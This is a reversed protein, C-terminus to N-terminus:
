GRMRQYFLLYPQEGLVARLPVVDVTREGFRLWQGSPQLADTTYRGKTPARGPADSVLGSGSGHGHHHHSVAAVLGLTVCGGRVDPSCDDDLLPSTLTLAPEFSMVTRLTPLVRAEAPLHSPPPAAAAAATATAAAAATAAPAAAPHRPSAMGSAADSGSDHSRLTPHVLHIVLVEPLVFLAASKRAGAPAADSSAVATPSSDHATPAYDNLDCEELSRRLASGVGGAGPDASLAVCLQTFPEVGEIDPRGPASVVTRLRGCFLSSLPGQDGRVERTADAAVRVIAAAAAGNVADAVPPPRPRFRRIVDSLMQPALLPDRLQVLVACVQSCALLAAELAASGVAQGAAHVEHSVRAAGAVDSPAGSGVAAAAAAETNNAAARALAQQLLQQLKQPRAEEERPPSVPAAPAPASVSAGSASSSAHASASTGSASPGSSSVFSCASATAAAAPVADIVARTPITAHADCGGGGSTGGGGSIERRGSFARCADSCAGGGGSCPRCGDSCAGGCLASGADCSTCQSSSGGVATGERQAHVKHHPPADAGGTTGAKVHEGAGHTPGGDGGHPHPAAHRTGAAAVAVADALDAVCESSGARSHTSTLGGVVSSTHSGVSMVSSSDVSSRKSRPVGSSGRAKSTRTVYTAQPTTQVVSFGRVFTHGVPATAVSPSASLSAYQAATAYQQGAVAVTAYQQGAVGATAHQQGAVAVVYQQGNPGVALAYLQQQQQPAVTAVPQQALVYVMQGNISTQIYMPASQQAAAMPSAAIYM